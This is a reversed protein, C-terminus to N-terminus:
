SEQTFKDEYKKVLSEIEENLKSLGNKTSFGLNTSHQRDFSHSVM